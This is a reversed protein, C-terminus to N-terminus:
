GRTKNARDWEAFKKAMRKRTEPNDWAGAEKIAAVREPSLVYENSKTTAMSNRGSSTMVSKPRQQNNNQKNYGNNQKEPLYKKLRYDLEVWYDESTPDYREETLKKDILQAIQSAENGGRPDYWPNDEMWDAALRQVEPDPIQINQKQENMQRAANNKVSQLSELKRRADYLMEEASAVGDGDSTGVSERMKMKAYEVEVKADDIAKDVRALEAGSTRKEVSALREALEQNQKKLANILHNSEKAKERHLQKKLKREERRAERIAQREPDVEGEGDGDDGDDADNTPVPEQSPEEAQPSVEGEPLIVTAGGDDLEEVQMDAKDTSNM